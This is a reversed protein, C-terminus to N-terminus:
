EHGLWGGYARDLLVLPHTVERGTAHSIQLTCTPCDTTAFAAPAERIADFVPAGVEMSRAYHQRKMGFTGAMGCCGRDVELVELGPVLRMLRPATGALHGVRAHCPTHHLARAPRPSLSRVDLDGAQHMALLYESADFTRSAVAEADAGLLDRYEKTLAFHCTTCTAVIDCGDAVADALSKLNFRAVAVAADKRGNALHPVGCCRQPPYQVTVGNRELVRVAAQGVRPDNFNTYCGTYFAVRRGSRRHSTPRRKRFWVPFSESAFTPLPRERAIGTCRELLSRVPRLGLALNALPAVPVALKDLVEPNGLLFRQLSPGAAAADAAKATALHRPINIGVPCAAYCMNCLVCLDVDPSRGLLRALAYERPNQRSPGGFYRHTPCPVVCARCGICELLDRGESQALASRGHDLLFIQLRREPADRLPPTAPVIGAEKARQGIEVLAPVLGHSAMVRLQLLAEGPTPVIKDLPVVLVIARAEELLTSINTFHQLFYTSGDEAAAASVGLLAVLDRGPRGNPAWAEVGFSAVIEAPELPPLKWPAAEMAGSAAEGYTDIVHLGRATLAGLLETALVGSKNVAVVRGPEALAAVAEAVEAPSNAFRVTVGPRDALARSFREALEPLRAVAGKRLERLRRLDLVDGSGSETGPTLTKAWFSTAKADPSPAMMRITLPFDSRSPGM